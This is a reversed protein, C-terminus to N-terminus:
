NKDSGWADTWPQGVAAGPAPTVSPNSGPPNAIHEDFANAGPALTAAWFHGQSDYGSFGQGFNHLWGILEPTYPRIFAVAPLYTENLQQVAPASKHFQDFLGPTKDLLDALDYLTPKLDAILPRLDTLLGDLNDSVSRLRDTAPELDELLPVTADVAKPVLDLTDRASRLTPPLEKISDAVNAEQEALVSSFETLNAVSGAVNARREAAVTTVRNFQTILDRIADGDRGVGELVAGLAGVAPGASTLTARLQDARDVVTGNLGTLLSNLKLRTPEDLQDFIQDVEIQKTMAPAYMGGDPITANGAPGPQLSLVREGVASYWQIWATTGERMPVSEGSISAEIIAKGDQVSLREVAGVPVGDVWVPSGEVLQAASAVVFKVTYQSLQAVGYLGLGIAAVVAVVAATVLNRRM